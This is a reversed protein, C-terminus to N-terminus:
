RMERGAGDLDEEEPEPLSDMDMEEQDFEEDGLDDGIEAEADFEDGAAMDDSMDDGPAAAAEGTIVGLAGSLSTKATSLAQILETIASGAAQQFQESEDTGIENQIGTVVAPLEEANMKSIQEFMKQVTDIMDQASLIVQSKQVEENELVLRSAAKLDRYHASLMQEMMVLKLYGRNSQIQSQGAKQSEKLLGRVKGLLALTKKTGMSSLDVNTEYHERLARQTLTKKNGQLEQLNM